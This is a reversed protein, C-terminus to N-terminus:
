EKKDKLIHIIVATGAGLACGCLACMVALAAPSITKKEEEEVIEEPPFCENIIEEWSAMDEKVEDESYSQALVAVDGAPMTFSFKAPKWGRKEFILNMKEDRVCLYYFVKDGPSIELTVVDGESSYERDCVLSIDDPSFLSVLSKYSESISITMNGESAQFSYESENRGLESLLKEGKDNLVEVSFFYGKQPYVKFTVNEGPVAAYRSLFVRVHDPRKVSIVSEPNVIAQRPLRGTALTDDDIDEDTFDIDLESPCIFVCGAPIKGVWGISSMGDGWSTLGVEMYRLSSCGYFMYDYAGDAIDAAKLRPARDLSTCNFFMYRYCRRVTKEAPLEPAEKLSACGLFLHSYCYEALETAPLAPASELCSCSRFMECYCGYALKTSPLEPADRLFLCNAFMASYCYESLTESPLLLGKASTLAQNDFFLNAFCFDAGELSKVNGKPSLITTVDGQVRYKGSGDIVIWRESDSFYKNEGKFRVTDDKYLRITPPEEWDIKHWEAGNKSYWLDPSLEGINTTDFFVNTDDEESIITLYDGEDDAASATLSIGFLILTCILVSIIVSLKKKNKM